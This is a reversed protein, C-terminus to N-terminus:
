DTMEGRISIEFFRKFEEPNLKLGLLYKMKAIASETTIDKGNVVGIKKLQESTEYYGMLVSGSICQTVNIIPIGQKITSSLMNIFWPETPANGSGFTELVIGQLGPINLIHKVVEEKIGPFLKLIVVNQDLDKRLFLEKSCDPQILADFNFSLHVGSECLPPFNPSQFADFQEASIKRTRNARYLKYEFYLCVERIVPKGNLQAAAIQISTILNEKADTRLDGIPLQSGTFIVPKCLNELMFSLISSTYSMTDTGSLIVFGDVLHYNKEIVEMIQIWYGPSMNSSDIPKEFSFTDIRCDVLNLEPIKDKIGKFDFSRLSGERNERVM